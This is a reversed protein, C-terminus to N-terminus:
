PSPPPRLWIAGGRPDVAIGDLMASRVGRCRHEPNTVDIRYLTRGFRWDIAYGPWMAPISPELTFTAGNRRLGLLEEVATHFGAELYVAVEEESAGFGARRLLHEIVHEGRRLGRNRSDRQM